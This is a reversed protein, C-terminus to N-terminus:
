WFKFSPFFGTLDPLKQEDDNRQQEVLATKANFGALANSNGMQNLVINAIHNVAVPQGTHSKLHANLVDHLALGQQFEERKNKHNVVNALDILNVSKGKLALANVAPIELLRVAIPASILSLNEFDVVSAKLIKNDDVTANKVVDSFNKLLFSVVDNQKANVAAFLVENDHDAMHPKVNHNSTLSQLVSLHGNIAAMKIIENYFETIHNVMWPHLMFQDVVEKHGFQAAYFLASYEQNLQALVEYSELLRKVVDLKNFYAAITLPRLHCKVRSPFFIPVSKSVLSYGLTEELNNWSISVVPSTGTKLIRDVEDVDGNACAIYLDKVPAIMNLPNVPNVVNHGRYADRLVANMLADKNEALRKLISNGKKVIGGLM